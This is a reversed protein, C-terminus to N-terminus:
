LYIGFIDILIYMYNVYAVDLRGRRAWPRWTRKGPDSPRLHWRRATFPLRRVFFARKLTYVSHQEQKYFLFMYICKYLCILASCFYGKYETLSLYIYKHKLFIYIYLCQIFSYLLFFSFLIHFTSLVPNRTRATDEGYFGDLLVLSCLVPKFDKVLCFRCFLLFICDAYLEGNNRWFPKHSGWRTWKVQSGLSIQVMSIHARPSTLWLVFAKFFWGLYWLNNM